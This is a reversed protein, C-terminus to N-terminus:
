EELGYRLLAVDIMCAAIVALPVAVDGYGLTEVRLATILFPSAPDFAATLTRTSLFALALVYVLFWGAGRRWHSLYAHGVGPAVGTLLYAPWRPRVSDSM